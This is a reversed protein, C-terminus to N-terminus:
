PKSLVCAALPAATRPYPQAVSCYNATGSAFARWYCDCPAGAVARVTSAILKGTLDDFTYTPRTGDARTAKDVVMAPLPPLTSWSALRMATCLDRVTDAPPLCDGAMPNAAMYARVIGLSTLGATGPHTLAYGVPRVFYNLEHGWRVPCWWAAWEGAATDAHLYGLGTGGSQTPLCQVPQAAIAQAPLALALLATLIFTRISM